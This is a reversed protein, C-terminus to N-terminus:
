LPLWLEDHERKEELSAYTDESQALGSEIDFLNQYARYLRNFYTLTHAMVDDHSVYGLRATGIFKYWEFNIKEADIEDPIVRVEADEDLGSLRMTEMVTRILESINAMSIITMVQKSTYTKGEGYKLMSALAFALAKVGEGEDELLEAWETYTGYRDQIQEVVGLTYMVRYPRGRSKIVGHVDSM